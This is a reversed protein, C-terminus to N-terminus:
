GRTSFLSTFTRAALTAASASAAGAVAAGTGTVPAGLQGTRGSVFTQFLGTL